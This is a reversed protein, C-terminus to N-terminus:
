RDGDPYRGILYNDDQSERIKIFVQFGGPLEVEIDHEPGGSYSCGYDVLKLDKAELVDLFLVQLDELSEPQNTNATTM